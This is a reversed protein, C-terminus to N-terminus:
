RSKTQHNAVYHKLHTFVTWLCYIAAGIGALLFFPLIWGAWTIPGLLYIGDELEFGAVGPYGVADITEEGGRYNDIQMNSFMCILASASGAVGLVMAWFGLNAVLGIGLGIFLATYSIGGSVYDLYYGLKSASGQQRALEGDFHDLFRSLIFIGGGWNLWLTEGTAMLAAGALALALTLISIHNPRVPGGVLPRVLVRAIRQDWPLINM